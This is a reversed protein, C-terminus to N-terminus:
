LVDQFASTLNSLDPIFKRVNKLLGLFSQLAQKSKLAPMESIAKARNETITRGNYNLQYGVYKVSDRRFQIKKFNFKVNNQLAVQIVRKLAEDHEKFTKGSILIGDIYVLVNPIKALVESAEGQFIDTSAKLGFPLRNSKYVGKPTAFSCL